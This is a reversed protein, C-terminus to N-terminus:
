RGYGHSWKVTVVQLPLHDHEIVKRIHQSSAQFDGAGDVAFVVGAETVPEKIAILNPRAAACGSGGLPALSVLVLCVSTFGFKGPYGKKGPQWTRNVRGELSNSKCHTM